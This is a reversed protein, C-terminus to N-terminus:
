LNKYGLTLYNSAGLDSMAMGDLTPADIRFNEYYLALLQRSPLLDQKAAWWADEKSKMLEALGKTLPSSLVAITKIRERIIVDLALM